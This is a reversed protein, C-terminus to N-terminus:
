SCCFTVAGTLLRDGITITVNVQRNTGGGGGFHPPEGPSDQLLLVRAGWEPSRAWNQDPLCNCSTLLEVPFPAMFIPFGCSKRWKHSRKTEGPRDRADAVAKFKGPKGPLPSFDLVGRM